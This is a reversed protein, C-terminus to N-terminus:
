RRALRLQQRRMQTVAEGRRDPTILQAAVAALTVALDAACEACLAGSILDAATARTTTLAAVAPEGDIYRIDAVASALIAIATRSTDEHAEWVDLVHAVGPCTPPQPRV